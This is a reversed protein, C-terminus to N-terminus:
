GQKRGYGKEKLILIVQKCDAKTRPVFLTVESHNELLNKKFLRWTRSFDPMARGKVEIVFKLDEGEPSTFDPTYVSDRFVKKGRDKFDGKGNLQKEYSEGSYKFGKIIKFKREEYSFPVGAEELLQYMVAEMGSRLKVGKLVTPKANTQSNYGRATKRAM